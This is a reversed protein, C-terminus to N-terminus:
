SCFLPEPVKVTLWTLTVPLPNPMPDKARGRVSEDPCVLLKLTCNLGAVAPAAVPVTLRTLLAGFEGVVMPNLPVPTAAVSTNVNLVVLMEKPFTFAPDEAVCLTVKALEPFEFTVTELMLSFPAANVKVPAFVGTVRLGPCPIVNLAIKLGLAAPLSVLETVTVLVADPEGLVMASEPFPTCVLWETVNLQVVLV